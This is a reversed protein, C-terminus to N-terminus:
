FNLTMCMHKSKKRREKPLKERAGSRQKFQHNSEVGARM